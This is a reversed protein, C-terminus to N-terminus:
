WYCYYSFFFSPSFINVFIIYCLITSSLFFTLINYCLYYRYSQLLICTFEYLHNSGAFLYFSCFRYYNTTLTWRGLFIVSSYLLIHVTFRWSSMDSIITRLITCYLIIYYQMIYYSTFEWKQFITMDRWLEWVRRVHM